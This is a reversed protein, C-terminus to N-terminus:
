HPVPMVVAHGGVVKEWRAGSIDAWFTARTSFAVLFIKERVQRDDM